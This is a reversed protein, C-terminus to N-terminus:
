VLVSTQEFANGPHLEAPQLTASAPSVAAIAEPAPPRYGLSSHTIPDAEPSPRGRLTVEIFTYLGGWPADPSISVEVREKRPLGASRTGDGEKIRATLFLSGTTVSEMVFDEDPSSVSFQGLHPKGYEMEGLILMKPEYIIFPQVDATITLKATPAPRANSLVNVYKM